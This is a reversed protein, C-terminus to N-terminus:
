QCSGGWASLVATIDDFDVVGNGDADGEATAAPDDGWHALVTTIDSFDITTSGDANGVCPSEPRLGMVIVDDINWGCYIVSADTTGMGWRFYVTPQNDAIASIDYEVLTWQNNPSMGGTPNQWVMTWNSGDNSAELTAHDYSASEVGLWRQFVLSVGTVGTCDIAGTTLYQRPSLNNPYNGALNFGYVNDGTYGSTPDPSGSGGGSSGGGGTPKGFAWQGTTTWGPNTDDVLFSHVPQSGGVSLDVTGENSDGGEPPVGGDNVKYTFADLGQYWGLPVYKVSGGSTALTHPVSTVRGYGADYLAGHEPLSTIIYTLEAPPDPLGDDGAVLEFTTSHGVPTYVSMGPASPPLPGCAGYASLDSPILLAPLGGGASLGALGDTAGIELYTIRIRGDFYMEIQFTNSDGTVFYQPVNLYTVAVRDDMQKWSVSGGTVPNLDDLLASIRPKNFHTAFSEFNASDAITFTIHGNPNVYFSSYAVGYLVVQKGDALTVQASPSDDGLTLTTGGTPNTPLELVAHGCAEYQDLGPSPTFLITRYAMDNLAGTGFLQSFYDIADLTTFSHCVGGNDDVVTNGALDRAEVEFYYTTEDTLESLSLSHSTAPNLSTVTQTLADCSLGYRVVVVSPEDTEFEIDATVQQVNTAMVASIMPPQCDVTATAMAVAPSGSGNDADEYTVTVTDGHSVLLSAGAVIDRLAVSGRFDASEPSTETLLITLGVPESTSAITVMVTDIVENDTNLGCDVVKITADSDCNYSQRDLSATGIDSCNQISPSAVLSFPQPGVPVNFGVVEVTWVGPEPNDVLVQEINDVRNAQTRAAPAAPNALGSLTWPYHQVGSPSRVVLDLDNVLAPSVNPTGPADDWAITVKLQSTGPSVFAVAGHSGGQSVEAEFFHGTRLLDVAATARVSGYGSQYDPGVNGIDVASHALLVKLTSNRFDPEGPYMARFDQLLLASIGCVVPSAMSTGCKVTYGGGSSTSTIGNDGGSQCGPASIDPKMRGDDAPGWSTFSTVSDNNSNLAGVTIHNKACAPPATTQYLTGCRGSNRENGNAWVIRFPNGDISGRVIADIVTDTVGYDGEWSCPFGNPATNTGISNNALDAGYVTIAETYDSEMDLPNTYLFGQTLGGPQELAYSIIGVNPAMGRNAGGSGQGSGGVTGAVHTAHDSTSSTDSMGITLRSGFDQHAFVKGGDFILANVGTGDLNYPAAQVVDAGVRLRADSNLESLAPLPPEIYQVADEDALKKLNSAPIEVVLTNVSPLFSVVSGAHRRVAEWGEDQADADQHLVVYAAVIPEGDEGPDAVRAAAKSLDNAGVVAWPRVEDAAVDPHLKWERKIHDLRRIAPANAVTAADARQADLTAFYANDGVYALLTVGSAALQFKERESLPRNFSLLVRRHPAEEGRAAVLTEAARAQIQARSMPAAQAAEVGTKWRVQALAGDTAMVSLTVGVALALARASLGRGARRGYQEPQM